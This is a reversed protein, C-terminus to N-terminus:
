RDVDPVTHLFHANSLEQCSWGCGARCSLLILHLWIRLSEIDAVDCRTEFRCGCMSKCSRVGCEGLSNNRLIRSKIIKPSFEACIRLSEGPGLTERSVNTERQFSIASLQNSVAVCNVWRPPRDQGRDEAGQGRAELSQCKGGAVIINRENGAGQSLVAPSLSGAERGVWLFFM